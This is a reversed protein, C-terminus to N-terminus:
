TFGDPLSSAESMGQTFLELQEENPLSGSLLLYATETFGFRDEADFGNLLDYLNHGRYTLRGEIPEKEGENVMYGHVNSVCTIGALVGTGDANRLGRKVSYKNFMKSQILNNEDFSTCLNGILESSVDKM